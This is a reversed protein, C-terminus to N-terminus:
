ENASQDKQDNRIQDRHEDIQGTHFTHDTHDADDNEQAEGGEVDLLDLRVILIEIAVLLHQM